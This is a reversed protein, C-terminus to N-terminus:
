ETITITGTMDRHGSGCPISCLFNFRGSKDTPLEVDVTQGESVVTNIGLDPVAFGHKGSVGTLRITVKEGKKASITNPSFTFNEVTMSIVRSATVTVDASSTASAGADVDVKSQADDSAPESKEGSEGATSEEQGDAGPQMVANQPSSASSAQMIADPSSQDQMVAPSSDQEDSAAPSTTSPTCATVLVSISLVSLFASIRKSM